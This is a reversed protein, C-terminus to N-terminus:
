AGKEWNVKEVWIAECGFYILNSLNRLLGFLNGWSCSHIVTPHVTGVETAMKPLPHTQRAPTERPPTQRPTHKGQSPTDTQSCLSQHVPTFVNGEPLKM